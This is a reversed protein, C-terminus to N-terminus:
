LHNRGICSTVARANLAQLALRLGEFQPTCKTNSVFLHEGAQDCTTESIDVGSLELADVGITLIKKGGLQVQIRIGKDIKRIDEHWKRPFTDRCHIDCAIFAQKYM